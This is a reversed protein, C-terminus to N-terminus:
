KRGNTEPVSPALADRLTVTQWDTAKSAKTHMPGGKRRGDIQRDMQGSVLCIISRRFHLSQLSHTSCKSPLYPAGTQLVIVVKLNTETWWRCQIQCNPERTCSSLLRQGNGNILRKYIANILVSLYKWYFPGVCYISGLRIAMSQQEANWEMPCKCKNRIMWHSWRQCNILQRDLTLLGILDNYRRWKNLKISRM